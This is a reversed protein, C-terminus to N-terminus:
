TVVVNSFLVACFLGAVVISCVIAPWEIWRATDPIQGGKLIKGTYVGAQRYLDVVNTGYSM